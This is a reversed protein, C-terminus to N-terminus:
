AAAFDAFNTSRKTDVNSTYCFAGSLKQKDPTKKDGTIKRYRFRLTPPHDIAAM